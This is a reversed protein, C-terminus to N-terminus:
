KQFYYNVEYADDHNSFYIPNLTTFDNYNATFFIPDSPPPMDMLLGAGHSNSGAVAVQNQLVAPLIDSLTAMREIANQDRFQWLQVELDDLFDVQNDYMSPCSYPSNFDAM